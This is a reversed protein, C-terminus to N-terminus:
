KRNIQGGTMSTPASTTQPLTIPLELFSRVALYAFAEAELADGQWGLTEVDYVPLGTKQSLLKMMLKNHRGGGTIYLASPQKPVQTLGHTIACVSMVTLTAAGDEASMGEPIFSNFADRDLSKPPTQTFFSHQMFRDVFAQDATGKSALAGDKDYPLGIHQLVWDDLLANGTGMDFALIEDDGDGGIWTVNSVGGINIIAIPKELGHALARHYLPVLPAGQGGAKVDASRFDNVVTIGTMEALMPGDGIQITERAAPNHWITQGHFGIMDITDPAINKDKLFAQVAQAHKQTLLKEAELVEKDATGESRGFCARLQDRFADEYPYFDFGLPKVHNLGDTEILAIDVGDISTGSMLGLVRFKQM